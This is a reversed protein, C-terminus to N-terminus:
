KNNSNRENQKQEWAFLVMSATIAPELGDHKESISRLM